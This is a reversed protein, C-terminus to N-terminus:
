GRRCLRVWSHGGSIEACSAVEGTICPYMFAGAVGVPRAPALCLGCRALWREMAPRFALQAPSVVNVLVPWVAHLRAAFLPALRALVRGARDLAPTGYLWVAAVGPFQAYPRAGGLAICAGEHLLAWRVPSLAFARAAAAQATRGSAQEMEAVDIPRLRLLVERLHCRRAPVVRYGRIGAHDGRRTVRRVVQGAAQGSSPPSSPRAPTVNIM